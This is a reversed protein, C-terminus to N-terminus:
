TLKSLTDLAQGVNKIKNDYFDLEELEKLPNFDDPDLKSIFNQRLCVKKLNRSFRPLNLPTCSTIRSHVLELEQLCGHADLLVHPIRSSNVETDDPYEALFDDDEGEPIEEEEEEDEESEGAMVVRAIKREPPAENTDSDPLVDKSDVVVFEETAESKTDVDQVDAFAQSKENEASM